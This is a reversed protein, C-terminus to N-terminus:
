ALRLGAQPGPTQQYLARPTFSVAVTDAPALDLYAATLARTLGIQLMDDAFAAHYTEIVAEDGPELTEIRADFGKVQIAHHDSPRGFTAAIARSAALAALFAQSQRRNVLVRVRGGAAVRCGCGITIRPLNATDRTALDIAVGSQMFAAHAENISTADPEAM